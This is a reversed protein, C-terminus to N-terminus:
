IPATSVEPQSSPAGPQRVDRLLGALPAAAAAVVAGLFRGAEREDPLVQTVMGLDVAYYVGDGGRLDAILRLGAVLRADEPALTHPQTSRYLVGPRLSTATAADRLNPLAM